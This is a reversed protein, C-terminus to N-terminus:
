GAAMPRPGIPCTAERSVLDFVFLMKAMGTLVAAVMALEVMEADSFFHRLEAALAPTMEGAMNPLAMEEALRLVARERDDFVQAATDGIAAIQEPTVGADEASRTNGRNCFACGHLTSLKLRLLEKVRREVRGKFFVEAYFGDYYWGLLEPAQALVEILTSEGRVAEATEAVQRWREPMLDRPLPPIRPDPM